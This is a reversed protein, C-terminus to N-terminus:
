GTQHLSFPTQIKSNQYPHIPSSHFLDNLYQFFQVPAGKKDRQFCPNRRCNDRKEQPYKRRALRHLRRGPLLRDYVHLSHELLGGPYAGHYKTSAPATYFDTTDLWALLKDVGPRNTGELIQIFRTKNDNAM